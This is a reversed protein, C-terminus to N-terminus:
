RGGAAETQEAELRASSESQGSGGAIDRLIQRGNRRVEVEAQARAVMQRAIEAADEPTNNRVYFDRLSEELLARHESILADEREMQEQLEAMRDGRDSEAKMNELEESRELYESYSAAFADIANNAQEAAASEKSRESEEVADFLSRGVAMRGIVGM